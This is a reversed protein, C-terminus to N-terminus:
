IHTPSLNRLISIVARRVHKIKWCYILPNISSNLFVLTWSSVVSIKFTANSRGSDPSVAFICLLPLYCILFVLYVYFTCVASKRGRAFNTVMEGNVPQQVKIQKQHRIVTLYIKCYFMGSLILCVIGIFAFVAGSITSSALVKLPFFTPCLFWVSIVLSVVYKHTVLENYRLHVQIALFRDASLAMVGFFSASSFLIGSLSFATYISCSPGGKPDPQLFTILLVICLPHVLLGVGLDSIALSMLLTKLPKSLSSTRRLAHITVSNFMIATVSLLANIVCYAVYWSYLDKVESRAPQLGLLEHCLKSKM